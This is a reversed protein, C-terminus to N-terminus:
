GKLTEKLFDLATRGKSAATIRLQVGSQNALELPSTARRRLIGRVLGEVPCHALDFLANVDRIDAGENPADGVVNEFFVLFAM